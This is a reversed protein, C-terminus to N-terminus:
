HIKSSWTMLEQWTLAGLKQAAPNGSSDFAASFPLAGQVNGLNRSLSVGLGSALGVAFSVPTRGLFEKVQAAADLALGVVRWGAERHEREFRDLLPMEQVCPACWTAWFNLLLPRGRYAALALEGGDPTEFRLEWLSPASGSSPGTLGPRASLRHALYGLGLSAGAVGVGALVTRRTSPNM